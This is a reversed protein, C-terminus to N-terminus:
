ATVDLIVYFNDYGRMKKLLKLTERRIKDPKSRGLLKIPDLNGILVIDRPIMPAIEEYDLIQDLSVADINCDLMNDLLERTDGCIHM